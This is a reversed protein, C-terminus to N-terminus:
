EKAPAAPAATGVTVRDKIAEFKAPGIGKVELIEEITAFAKAERYEVIKGAIAPGVGPLSTLEETATNIDILDQAFVPVSFFGLLLVCIIVHIMKKM